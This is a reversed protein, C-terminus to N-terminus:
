CRGGQVCHYMQQMTNASMTSAMKSMMMMARMLLVLLDPLQASNWFTVSIHTTIMYVAIVSTAAM